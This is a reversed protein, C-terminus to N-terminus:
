GRMCSSRRFKHDIHNRRLVDGYVRRFEDTGWNGQNSNTQPLAAGRQNSQYFVRWWVREYRYDQGQSGVIESESYPGVWRHEVGWGAAFGTKIMPPLPASYTKSIPPTVPAPRTYWGFSRDYAFSFFLFPFSARASSGCLFFRTESSSVASNILIRLLLSHKITSWNFFCAAYIETNHRNNDDSIWWSENSFNRLLRMNRLSNRCFIKLLYHSWNDSSGHYGKILIFEVKLSSPM